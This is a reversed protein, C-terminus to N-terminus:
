FVNGTRAKDLDWELAVSRADHAVVRPVAAPGVLRTLKTLMNIDVFRGPKLHVHAEGDPTIAAGAIRDFGPLLQVLVIIADVDASAERMKRQRKREYLSAGCRQCTKPYAGPYSPPQYSCEPCVPSNSDEHADSFGTRMHAKFVGPSMRGAFMSTTTTENKRKMRAERVPERVNRDYFEDFWATASWLYDDISVGSESAKRMPDCQRLFQGLCELKDEVDNDVATYNVAAMAIPMTTGLPDMGIRNVINPNARRQAEAWVKKGYDLIDDVQRM